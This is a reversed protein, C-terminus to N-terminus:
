GEQQFYNIVATALTLGFIGTLTSLSGLTRRPPGKLFESGEEEPPRYEFDVVEPSYVCPIGRQIGQKRLKRRVTRALPCGETDMIDGMRIQAPDTKLAAGMSSFIPIGRRFAEALLFVKPSLSDIADVILDPQYAFIESASERDFYRDVIEVRAEPNISLVRERAVEVKPQHLNPEVALIQRNFNTLSVRDFDVLVFDTIGSRALGELTYGGVAGMGVIMVKHNIVKNYVQEGLLRRTRLFRDM